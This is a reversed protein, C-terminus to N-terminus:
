ELGGARPVRLLDRARAIETVLSAVRRVGGEEAWRVGMAAASAREHALGGQGNGPRKPARQVTENGSRTGIM